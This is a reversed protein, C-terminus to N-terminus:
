PSAQRRPAPPTLRSGHVLLHLAREGPETLTLISAQSTLLGAKQLTRVERDLDKASLPAMKAKGLIRNTHELIAAQDQKAHIAELVALRAAQEIVLGVQEAFPPHSM